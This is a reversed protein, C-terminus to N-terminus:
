WFRFGRGFAYIVAGWFLIGGGVFYVGQLVNELRSAPPYKRIRDLM